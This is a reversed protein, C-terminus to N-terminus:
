LDMISTSHYSIYNILPLKLMFRKKFAGYVRSNFDMDEAISASTWKMQDAVVKSIAINGNHIKNRDTIARIEGISLKKEEPWLIYKDFEKYLEYKPTKYGGIDEFLKYQHMLHVLKYKEFLYKVIEVRQPHPIDDADNLILIDGTANECAVNRNQGPYLKDKSKTIKVTFKFVKKELIDISNDKLKDFESISIVAEDPLETQEGYLNLLNNLHAVHRYHCPIIISVKSLCSSLTTFLFMIYFCLSFM